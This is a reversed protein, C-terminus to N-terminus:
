AAEAWGDEEDASLEFVTEQRRDIKDELDAFQRLVDRLPGEARQVQELYLLRILTETAKPPCSKEAEWRHVTQEGVKLLRALSAQSLLMERRLFRIERGSLDRKCRTLNEGIARHLADIDKIAVSKGRVSETWEFGNVLYIDDLGCETYHYREDHM